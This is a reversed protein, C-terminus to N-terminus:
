DTRRKKIEKIPVITREENTGEKCTNKFVSSGEKAQERRGVGKATTKM